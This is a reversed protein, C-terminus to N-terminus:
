LLRRIPLGERHERSGKRPVSLVSCADRFCSSIYHEVKLIVKLRMMAILRMMKTKRM